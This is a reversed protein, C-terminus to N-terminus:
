FNLSIKGTKRTRPPIQPAQQELEHKKAKFIALTDEGIMNKRTLVPLVVKEFWDAHMRHPMLEILRLLDSRELEDKVIAQMVKLRQRSFDVMFEVPQLLFYRYSQDLYYLNETVFAWFSMYNMMQHEHDEEPIQTYWRDVYPAPLSIGHVAHAWCRQTLSCRAQMLSTLPGHEAASLNVMEARALDAATHEADLFYHRLQYRLFRLYVQVAEKDDPPFMVAELARDAQQLVEECKARDNLYIAEWVPRRFNDLWNDLHRIM